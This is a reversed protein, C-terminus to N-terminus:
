KAKKQKVSTILLKIFHKAKKVAKNTLLLIIDRQKKETM